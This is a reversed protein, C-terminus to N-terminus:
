CCVEVSTITCWNTEPPCLCPSTTFRTGGGAVQDLQSDTLESVTEASLTLKKNLKTKM